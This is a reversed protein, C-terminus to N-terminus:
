SLVVELGPAGKGAAAPSPGDAPSPHSLAFSRQKRGSAYLDRQTQFAQASQQLDDAMLAEHEKQRQELSHRGEDAGLDM